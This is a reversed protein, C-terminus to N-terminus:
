APQRTLERLLAGPPKRPRGRFVIALVLIGVACQGVTPVGCARHATIVSPVFRVEFQSQQLVQM